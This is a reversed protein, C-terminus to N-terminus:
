RKGSAYAFVAVGLALIIWLENPVVDGADEVEAPATRELKTKSKKEFDAAWWLYVKEFQNLRIAARLLFLRADWAAYQDREIQWRRVFKHFELKWSDNVRDSSDVARALTAIGNDIAKVRSSFKGVSIIEPLDLGVEGQLTSM